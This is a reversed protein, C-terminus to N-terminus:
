YTVAPSATDSDQEQKLRAITTRLWCKVAAELREPDGELSKVTEESDNLPIFHCPVPNETRFEAPVWDMLICDNGCGPERDPILWHEICVLSKSFTPKAELPRGAPPAYGGGEVLDLEGELLRLLDAKSDPMFGGKRGVRTPFPQRRKNAGLLFTARSRGINVSM